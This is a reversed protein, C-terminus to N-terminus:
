RARFGALGRSSGKRAGVFIHSRQGEAVCLVRQPCCHNGKIPRMWDIVRGKLACGSTLLGYYSLLWQYCWM